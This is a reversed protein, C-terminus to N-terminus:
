LVADGDNTAGARLAVDARRRYLQRDTPHQALWTDRLADRSSTLMGAVEEPTAFSMRHLAIATRELADDLDVHDEHTLAFPDRYNTERGATTM